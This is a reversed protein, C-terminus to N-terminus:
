YIKEVKTNTYYHTLIAKYYDKSRSSASNAMGRAGWQSLGLGSGSGYGKFTVTEGPEGSVFHLEKLIDKFSVGQDSIKIPVEKRGIEMGYNNEISIEISEPVPRSVKIEFFTSNIGLLEQAQLGSLVFTGGSGSFMIERVRKSSTRDNGFISGEGEIPSLRMSELKGIAYGRTALRREIEAATLAKEWNYMPADEDYDKVSRLYPVYRGWVDMSNETRGGSSKHYVAEISQGNYTVIVGFTADVLESITKKETALGYYDQGDENAKLDYGLQRRNGLRNYAFSRSAVAQAKIAEDPFIVPIEEGVVSYLYQELPLINVVDLTKGGVALRVEFSGRYPKKNVEIAKASESATFRLVRADFKQAGINVTGGEANVFYRDPKLVTKKGSAPIEVIMEDDCSIEAAFQGNVVAVAINPSAADVSSCNLCILMFLLLLKKM